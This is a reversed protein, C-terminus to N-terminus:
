WPRDFIRGVREEGRPGGLPVPLPAGRDDQERQACEREGNRESSSRSRQSRRARAGRDRRDHREPSLQLAKEILGQAEPLRLNRDALSYGLANYAHAHDPKLAILKKLSTELLDVRELKEALMAYDYLLEPQDPMSQLADGILDFAERPRKADRLMQAETLLLQM